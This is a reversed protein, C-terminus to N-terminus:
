RECAQDIVTLSIGHSIADVRDGVRCTLRATEVATDGILGSNSRVTVLVEDVHWRSVTSAISVVTAKVKRAPQVSCSAAVSAMPILCFPVIRM